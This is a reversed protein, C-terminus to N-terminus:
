YIDVIDSLVCTKFHKQIVLLLYMFYQIVRYEPFSIHIELGAPQKATIPDILLLSPRLTGFSNRSPKSYTFSVSSILVPIDVEM